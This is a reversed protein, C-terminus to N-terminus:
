NKGPRDNRPWPAIGECCTHLRPHFRHFMPGFARPPAESPNHFSATRATKWGGARRAATGTKRRESNM